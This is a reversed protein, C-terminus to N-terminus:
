VKAADANGAMGSADAHELRAYVPMMTMVHKGDGGEEEKENGYVTQLRAGMENQANVGNNGQTRLVALSHRVRREAAARAKDDDHEDKVGVCSSSAM